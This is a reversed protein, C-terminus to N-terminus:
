SVGDEQMDIYYILDLKAALTDISMELARLMLFRVVDLFDDPRLKLAM